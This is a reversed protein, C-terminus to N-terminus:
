PSVALVLQVGIDLATKHTLVPSLAIMLICFGDFGLNFMDGKAPNRWPAVDGVDEM